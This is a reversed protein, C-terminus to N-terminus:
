EAPRGEPSFRTAAMVVAYAIFSVALWGFGSGPWVLAAFNPLAVMALYIWLGLPWGIRAYLHHHLHDRDAHFPSRGGAMRAVMLRITDFVPVAFLLAVDDAFMTSGQGNYVLIALLGFLASLAYSGGDGLFLKGAMNFSWVVALAVFVTLLLPWLAPPAHFFLVLTWVLGLGTVIGNKGDAMNIANLLGVLCLLTFGLGFYSGLVWTGAGSFRLVSLQLAPAVAAVSGLILLAAALRLLPPLHRRDDITGIAFMAAVGLALWALYPDPVQSFTLFAGAVAAGAVAIGGVLPTPRAHLKRAGDPHDLLRLAKGIAMANIGVLLAISLGLVAAAILLTLASM